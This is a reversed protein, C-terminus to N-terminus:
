ALVVRMGAFVPFQLAYAWYFAGRLRPLRVPLAGILLALPVAALAFHGHNPIALGALLAACAIWGAVPPDKARALTTCGAVLGVGFVGFECWASAVATAALALAQAFSPLRSGLVGAAALGLAFTFLVNLQGPPRGVVQMAAQAVAGWALMRVAVAALKADPRARMGLALAFAFLPFAVRGVHYVWEPLEGVAYRMAHEALM